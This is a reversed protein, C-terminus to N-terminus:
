CTVPDEESPRAPTVVLVATLGETNRTREFAAAKNRAWQGLRRLNPKTDEAILERDPGLSHAFFQGHISPMDPTGAHLWSEQSGDPPRFVWLQGAVHCKYPAGGGGASWEHPRAYHEFPQHTKASLDHPWARPVTLLRVAEAETAISVRYSSLTLTMGGGGGRADLGV